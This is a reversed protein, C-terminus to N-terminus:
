DIELPERAATTRVRDVIQDPHGVARLGDLIYRLYKPSPALYTRSGSITYMEARIPGEATKVDITRREGRGTMNRESKLEVEDMAGLQAADILYIAGYTTEGDAQEVFAGGGGESRVEGSFRLRYGDLSASRREGWAGIRARFREPDLNSGYAFYWVSQSQHTM